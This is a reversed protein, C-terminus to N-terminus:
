RDNRVVLIKWYGGPQAWWMEPRGDGRNIVKGAGGIVQGVFTIGVCGGAQKIQLGVAGIQDGAGAPQRHACAPLRHKLRQALHHVRMLQGQVKQGVQKVRKFLVHMEGAPLAAVLSVGLQKVVAGTRGVRDPAQQQVQVAHGIFQRQAFAVLNAGRQLQDIEPLVHTNVDGTAAPVRTHGGHALVV